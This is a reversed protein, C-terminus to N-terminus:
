DEAAILHPNRLIRNMNIKEVWESALVKVLRELEKIKRAQQYPFRTLM